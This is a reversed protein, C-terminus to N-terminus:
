EHEMDGELIENVLSTFAVWDEYMDNLHDYGKDTMYYYKRPAGIDNNGREQSLYGDDKLRRLIPYITNENVELRKMIRLIEYASSKKHEIVKMICLEVVGKKMQANM